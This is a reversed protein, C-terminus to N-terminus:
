RSSLAKLMGDYTAFNRRWDARARAEEGARKGLSARLGGDALARLLAAAVADSDGPQALLGTEGDRVWERIAPLATVVAAKESAMAELLSVSTGDSHSSSVYVDCARYARALEAPPLRPVWVVREGLGLSAALARLTAERSGAGVLVLRAQPRERAVRAFAPLLIEHGYVPEFSRTCLVVEHEPALGQEARWADDRGPGFTSLDIGWPFVTVKERPFGTVECLRDKVTHADVTVLDARRTVYRAVARGRATQTEILVDSGWPMSLHPRFGSLAGVMGTTGLYGSHLVDPELRRVLRRFHPAALALNLAQTGTFPHHVTALGERVYPRGRALYSVLITDHGAAVLGDLFLRDHSSDGNSLYVVRM